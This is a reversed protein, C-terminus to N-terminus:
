IRVEGVNAGFDIKLGATLAISQHPQVTQTKGDPLTCTWTTPSVNKLAWANRSNRTVEAVPKEFNYTQGDNVHHPFLQTDHNLMVVNRGIRIRPPLPVPRQCSWCPAANHTTNGTVRLADADYFNEAGCQCYIISDRLKVLAARWESERVRGQQPDRIGDTFARTFLERLFQPYINWYLIANDQYGKVPRNSTDRPDYIFLPQTGYLKNMAPLDLAHIEAERKGELPHHVMLMYFLLVALAWLDTQTSPRAVGRVVEPAMFRPTGLVGSHTAGDIAVNDNDAILAEGTNPDFFVNGFSIDRYCLGKAHLQLFSHALELGATALACFTPDCRRKMLDVISKFRPERLPMIYGFGRVDSATAMDLPWLFRATPAGKRMLLLLAEKQQPTAQAPFYWKLAVAQGGWTARYVEGQGGSGLLKEIQCPTSTSETKVLQGIRLMYDM